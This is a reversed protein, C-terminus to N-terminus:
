KKCKVYLSELDREAKDIEFNPDRFEVKKFGTMKFINIVNEDDFMFKHDDKLYAIYNIQDIFSGTNVRAPSYMEDYTVFMKKQFYSKLYLGANPICVLFEGGPKLIRYIENLFKLLEEYPLHELLHSSYVKDVLDNKLPIGKSLDHNIDANLIDVNICNNKSKSPGSGLNLMIEDRELIKQWRFRSIFHNLNTYFYKLIKFFLPTKRLFNQVRHKISDARNLSSNQVKNRM